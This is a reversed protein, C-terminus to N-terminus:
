SLFPDAFFVTEEEEWGSFVKAMRVFEEPISELMQEAKERDFFYERSVLTFKL